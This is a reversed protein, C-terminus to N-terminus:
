RLVGRLLIMGLGPHRLIAWILNKHWDFRVKEQLRPLIGNSTLERFFRDIEEDRLSSFLKRFLYGVRIELGLRRRWAREYQSLFEERFDGSECSQIAMEAAMKACLLGYFLGGGTTPKVQGAADGVALVREGYTRRIPTMPIVWSRVRIEQPPILRDEELDRLLAQLPIMPNESTAVGVRAYAQDDRMFPVVWGFSGGARREGFFVRAGEFPFAMVEVQSTRLLDRPAGLGLRRQIAYRPGSALIILSASLYERSGENRAVDVTVGGRGVTIGRVRAEVEISAGAEVAM